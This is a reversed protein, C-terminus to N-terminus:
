SAATREVKVGWKGNTEMENLHMLLFFFNPRPKRFMLLTRYKLHRPLLLVFITDVTNSEGQLRV